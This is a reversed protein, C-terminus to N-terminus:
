TASAFLSYYVGPEVTRQANLMEEIGINGLVGVLLL